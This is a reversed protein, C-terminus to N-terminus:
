EAEIRYVVGRDLATVYLEGYADEGFSSLENALLGDPALDDTVDVPDGDPLGGAQRVTFIEGTCYDGYFYAGAYDPLCAGRYVYGGTISCRGGTHRYEVFPPVYGAPESCNTEGPRCTSGEYIRWGYNAGGAAGAPQFDVEEVTNQGVDGIWLDGTMRDFSVRWPNRLGYAWIEPRGGGGAFPNDQPIAYPDGGRVDIRLLKGLLTDLKQGNNQPDNGSGGDGSTVYLYGDPGFGLWGANHNGFPQAITLLRRESSPDAVNPDATVSFAAVVTDGDSVGSGARATYDVYFLGSTAFDPAFALGLLGQENGRDFVRGRIDLFPEALLTGDAVVRIVGAQEVIFLRPDGAPATVYVPRSLGTVVPVLALSAGTAPTCFPAVPADPPAADPIPADAAPVPADVPAADGAAM